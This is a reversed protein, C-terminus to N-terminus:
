SQAREEYHAKMDFGRSMEDMQSAQPAGVGAAVAAAEAAADADESPSLPPLRLEEEEFEEAM